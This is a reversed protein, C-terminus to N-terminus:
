FHGNILLHNYKTYAGSAQIFEEQSNNSIDEYTIWSQDTFFKDEIREFLVLGEDLMDKIIEKLEGITLNFQKKNNKLNKLDKNFHEIENEKVVKHDILDEQWDKAIIYSIIKDFNMECNLLSNWYPIYGYVFYIENKYLVREGLKFKIM